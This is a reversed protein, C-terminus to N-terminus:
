AMKIDLLKPASKAPSRREIFIWLKEESSGTIWNQNCSYLALYSLVRFLSNISMRQTYIVNEVNREERSIWVLLYNVWVCMIAKFIKKWKQLVVNVFNRQLGRRRLFDSTSAVSGGFIHYHWDKEVWWAEPCGSINRSHRHVCGVQM